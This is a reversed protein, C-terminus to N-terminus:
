CESSPVDELKVTPIADTIDTMPSEINEVNESEEDITDVNIVNIGRIERRRQEKKFEKYGDWLGCVLEAAILGSSNKSVLHIIFLGDRHLWQRVFDDVRLDTVESLKDM